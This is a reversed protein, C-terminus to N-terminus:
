SKGFLGKAMGAVDDMIGGDGDRDLFGSVKDLMSDGGIAGVLGQLKEQSLGTAAAATEVTNGPEPHAKGLAAMATQVQEESLGVKGALDAINGVGGFQQMLGDLVGM